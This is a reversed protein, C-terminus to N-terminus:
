GSRGDHRGHRRSRLDALAVVIAFPALWAIRSQYRDDPESFVGALFANALLASLLAAMFLRTPFRLRRWCLLLLVPLLLLSLLTLPVVLMRIEQRPLRGTAQRSALFNEMLAPDVDGVWRDLTAGRVACPDPCYDNLPAVMVLQAGLDRIASRAFGAPDALIAGKWATAMEGQLHPPRADTRDHVAANLPHGRQWLIQQSDRGLQTRMACLQPTPPADGACSAELWAATLGEQQLAAFAFYDGMPAHSWREHALGNVIVLLGISLASFGLGKGLIPAVAQRSLAAVAASGLTVAVLLLPHTSHVTAALVLLMGIFPAGGQRPEAFLLVALIVVLGAFADPSIQMAHWGWSTVLALAGLLLSRQRASWGPLLRHSLLAMAIAVLAGQAIAWLWLMATTERGLMFIAGFLGYVPSREYQVSHGTAGHIFPGSDPLLLPHGNYLAAALLVAFPGLAVLLHRPPQRTAHAGSM